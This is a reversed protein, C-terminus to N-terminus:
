PSIPQEHSGEHLPTQFAANIEAILEHLSPGSLTVREVVIGSIVQM